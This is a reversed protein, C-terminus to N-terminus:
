KACVCKVASVISSFLLKLRPCGENPLTYPSFYSFKDEYLGRATLNGWLAIRDTCRVLLSSPHQAM